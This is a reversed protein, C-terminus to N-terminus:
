FGSCCRVGVDAMAATASESRTASCTLETEMSGFGGGRVQCGQADCSDEWEAVNGSLDFLGPFGGVCSTATGVDIPGGAGFDLGNCASGVYASPLGPDDYPFGRMGSQSCANFWESLAANDHDAPALTEGGIQGCLRMGKSECFARADCWDISVVPLRM